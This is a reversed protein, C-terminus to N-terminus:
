YRFLTKEINSSLVGFPDKGMGSLAEPFTPTVSGEKM